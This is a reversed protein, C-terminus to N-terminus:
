ADRPGLDIKAVPKFAEPPPQTRPAYPDVVKSFYYGQGWRIGLEALVDAEALQEIGEAIPTAGTAEALELIAKIVQRNAPKLHLDRVLKLDIKLYSVGLQAVAELGSHGSGLDDIAFSFGLEIFSQMADRYLALNEIVERETIELTVLEPSIRSGLYDLVGRGLFSADRVTAPITNVFLRGPAGFVEWDIFTQRRCARELEELVGYRAALDFLPGPRELDSGRPGRSLGEHALVQRNTIDVIPQFGTWLERRHIMEVLREREDRDRLKQRLEASIQAEEILRLIQREQSLLPNELVFGYGVEVAPRERQYPLTFRAVRGALFTAVHDARRRLEGLSFSPGSVSSGTFIFVRDGEREDRGLVEDESVLDSFLPDIQERVSQYATHGFRREIRALSTLDVLIAGLGGREELLAGIEPERQRFTAIV